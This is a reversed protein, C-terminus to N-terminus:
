RVGVLEEVHAVGDVVEAFNGSFVHFLVQPANEETMKGM